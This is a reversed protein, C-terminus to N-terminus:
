DAPIFKQMWADYMAEYATGTLPIGSPKETGSAGWDDNPEIIMPGETTVTIDWGVFPANPLQQHTNLALEVVDDWFPFESGTIQCGTDPHIHFLDGSPQPFASVAPQLTGDDIDVPATIGGAKMQDVVANGSPMKLTALIPEPDKEPFRGTVLRSTALGGSTFGQLEPHNEVREQLVTPHSKSNSALYEILEPATFYLESNQVDRYHGNKYIWAHAGKGTWMDTWISFLDTEPLSNSEGSWQFPTIEGGDFSALPSPTPIDHKLAWKFWSRKDRMNFSVNDSTRGILCRNLRVKPKHYLYRDAKEYREPRYLRYSYYDKPSVGHRLTLIAMQGFQEVHSHGTWEAVLDGYDSACTYAERWWTRLKGATLVHAARGFWWQYTGAHRRRKRQEVEEAYDAWEHLTRSPSKERGRM